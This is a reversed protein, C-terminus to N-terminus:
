LELSPLFVLRVAKPALPEVLVTNEGPKVRRTIDLRLPKGIVGGAYAGNITAAASDDPLDDIELYVRYRALDVDAPITVRGRFPDAAAVPSVTL